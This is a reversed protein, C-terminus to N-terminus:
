AEERTRRLWRRWQQVFVGLSQDRQRCRWAMVFPRLPRPNALLDIYSRLDEGPTFWEGHQRLCAYARHLRREDEVTGYMTHLIRLPRGAGTQLERLRRQPDSSYGIKIAGDPGDQIFYIM